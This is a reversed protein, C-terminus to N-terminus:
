HLKQKALRAGNEDHIALQPPRRKFSGDPMLTYTPVGFFPGNPSFTMEHLKDQFEKYAPDTLVDCFHAHCADFLASRTMPDDGRYTASNELDHGFAIAIIGDDETLASRDAANVNLLDCREVLTTMADVFPATDHLDRGLNTLLMRLHKIHPRITDLHAQEAAVRPGNFPNKEAKLKALARNGLHQMDYLRGIAHQIVRASQRRDILWLSAARASSFPNRKAEVESLQGPRTPVQQM